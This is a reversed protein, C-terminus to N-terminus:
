ISGQFILGSVERLKSMLNLMEERPFQRIIEGTKDDSVKIVPSTSRDDYSFSVKTGLNQVVETVKQVLESFDVAEINIPSVDQPTESANIVEKRAETSFIKSVPELVPTSISNKTLEVAVAEM